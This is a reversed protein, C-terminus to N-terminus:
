GFFSFGRKKTQPLPKGTVASAMLRIARSIQSDGLVMPTAEVQMRRAMAYDDPIKWQVPRTLAKTVHEESVGLMNTEDRNLVIELKPKGGVFYQTILRNANRLEAIGTLTVLYVASAERFLATKLYQLGLGGDVVVNEFEQRAVAVLRGIADANLEFPVFRGPSPLVAVGSSHTVLLKSLFRGDLRNFADLASVTSYDSVIGLNLAADGLPLNFDILLTSEGSDKALAVAANSALTTTGVGGKAGMFLLLRGSAKKSARPAPRRAAARVLAEAIVSSSALPITLFERAGVRMCRMLLDPDAKISYVMVTKLGDSCLAEVMELTYEPDSDLDIIVVDCHSDIFRPLDDLTQPYSTFERVESGQCEALAAAVKKRRDEDPGILAISLTEAGISDPLQAELNSTSDSIVSEGSESTYYRDRRRISFREDPQLDSM